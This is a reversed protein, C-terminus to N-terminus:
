AQKLMNLVYAQMAMYNPSGFGTVPDWGITCMFGKCSPACGDETCINDGITIDKFCTPCAGGGMKYILPNLFGLPKGSKAIVLDNLLAIIGAFIPSACSTGGVPEVQGGDIILVQSGLGAVDPFGRGQGNYYSSPPM